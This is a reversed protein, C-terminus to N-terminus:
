EEIEVLPKAGLANLGASHIKSSIFSEVEGKAQIVMNRVKEDFCKGAFKINSGIDGSLQTLLSLLEEKDAKRPAGKSVIETAKELLTKSKDFLRDLQESMQNQAEVQITSFEEIKPRAEGNFREITCPVGDSCNMSSLMDGLQTGSITVRILERRGFYWDHTQGANRQAEWITLSIYHSHKIASGFLIASPSCTTRCLSIMGFAPHTEVIEGETIGGKAERHIKVTEEKTIYGLNAGAM